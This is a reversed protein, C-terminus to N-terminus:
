FHPLKRLNCLSHDSDDSVRVSLGVQEKSVQQSSNIVVEEVMWCRCM